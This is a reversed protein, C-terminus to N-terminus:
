KDSHLKEEEEKVTEIEDRKRKWKSSDKLLAVSRGKHAISLNYHFIIVALTSVTTSPQYLSQSWQFVFIKRIKLRTKESQWLRHSWRRYEMQILLTSCMVYGISISIFGTEKIQFISWCSHSKNLMIWSIMVISDM